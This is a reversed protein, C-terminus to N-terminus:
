NVQYLFTKMNSLPAIRPATRDYVQTHQLLFQFYELNFQPLFHKHKQKFIFLFNLNVKYRNLFICSVNSIQLSNCDDWPCFAMVREFCSLYLKIRLSIAAKRSQAFFLSKCKRFNMHLSCPVCAAVEFTSPYSPLSALILCM